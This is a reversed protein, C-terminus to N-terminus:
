FIESLSGHSKLIKLKSLCKVLFCLHFIIMYSLMGKHNVPLVDTGPMKNIKVM